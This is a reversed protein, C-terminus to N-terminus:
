YFISQEKEKTYLVEKIKTDQNNVYFMYKKGIELTEM